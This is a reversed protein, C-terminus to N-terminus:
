ESKKGSRSHRLLIRLDGVGKVAVIAAIVFFCTASIGFIILWVIAVKNM